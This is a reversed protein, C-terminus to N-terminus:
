EDGTETRCLRYGGGEFRPSARFKRTVEDFIVFAKAALEPDCHRAFVEHSDAYLALPSLLHGYGM